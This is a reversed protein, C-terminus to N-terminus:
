IEVMKVRIGDQENGRKDNDSFGKKAHLRMEPKLELHDADLRVAPAGLKSVVPHAHYAVDALDGPLLPRKDFSHLKPLLFPEIQNLLPLARHHQGPTPTWGLGGM